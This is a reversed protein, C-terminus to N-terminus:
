ICLKRIASLIFSVDYVFTEIPKRLDLNGSVRIVILSAALFTNYLRRRLSQGYLYRKVRKWFKRCEERLAYIRM